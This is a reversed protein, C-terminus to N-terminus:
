HSMFIDIVVYIIFMRVLRFVNNTVHHSALTISAAMAATGMVSTFMVFSHDVYHAATRQRGTRQEMM